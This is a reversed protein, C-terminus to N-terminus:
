LVVWLCVSLSRSRSRSLSVCVCVCVCVCVRVCPSVFCPAQTNVRVKEALAKLRRQKFNYDRIILHCLNSHALFM